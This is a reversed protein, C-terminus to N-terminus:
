NPQEPTGFFEAHARSYGECDMRGNLTPDGVLLARIQILHSFNLGLLGLTRGLEQFAGVTQSYTDGFAKLRDSPADADVLTPTHGSLFFLERGAPVTVGLLFPLSSATQLSSDGSQPGQDHGESPFPHRIVGVTGLREREKEHANAM